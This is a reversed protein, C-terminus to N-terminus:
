RQTSKQGMINKLISIWHPPYLLMAASHVTSHYGVKRTTGYLRDTYLQLVAAKANNSCKEIAVRIERLKMYAKGIPFSNSDVEHLVFYVAATLALVDEVHGWYSDALVTHKIAADYASCHEFCPDIVTQQMPGKLDLASDVMQFNSGFRTKCPFKLEKRALTPNTGKKGRFLCLVYSHNRFFLVIDKTKTLVKDVWHIKAIDKLLLNSVHGLCPVCVFSSLRLELLKWVATM